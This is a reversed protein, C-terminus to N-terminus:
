SSNYNWGEILLYTCQSIHLFTFHGFNVNKRLAATMLFKLKKKKSEAFCKLIIFVMVLEDCSVDFKSMQTMFIRFHSIGLFSMKKRLAATM